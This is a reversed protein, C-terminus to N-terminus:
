VLPAEDAVETPLEDVTVDCAAEAPAFVRLTPPSMHDLLDAVKDRAAHIAIRCKDSTVISADNLIANLSFLTEEAHQTGDASLLVDVYQPEVAFLGGVLWDLNILWLHMADHDCVLFR